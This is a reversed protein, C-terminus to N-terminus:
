KFFELLFQELTGNYKALRIDFWDHQDGDAYNIQVQGNFEILDMDSANIGETSEYYRTSVVIQSSEEWNVLDSSRTLATAFHDGFKKLYFMYFKGDAFRITPCAAYSNPSYITGVDTWNVLDTSQAFRANFCTTGPECTEYVMVFSGDPLQTVSNNFYVINIKSHIAIQPESWNILDDTYIFSIDNTTQNWNQAGFVYLRSGSVIASALGLTTTHEAILTKGSYIEIKHIERASVMLLLDGNWIFPTAEMRNALEIEGSKTIFSATPPAEPKKTSCGLCGSLVLSITLMLVMRM